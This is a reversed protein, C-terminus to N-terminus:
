FTFRAALQFQRRPFASLSQGFTPRDVFSDPLQLNTRNLLHNAGPHATDRTGFVKEAELGRDPTWTDSVELIAIAVGEPDRLVLRAGRALTAGFAEPVDLTVPMPWLTGDALRMEDRVREYDAQGLFGELPSFAGNLLLELDCLQRATLDWSPLDRSAKRASALADGTAYLNKLAGGHPAILQTM